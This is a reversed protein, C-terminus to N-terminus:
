ISDYRAAWTIWGALGGKLDIFPTHYQGLLRPRRVPHPACPTKFTAQRNRSVSKLLQM